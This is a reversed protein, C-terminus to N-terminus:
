LTGMWCQQLLAPSIGFKPLVRFFEAAWQNTCFFPPCLPNTRVIKSRHFRKCHFNYVVARPDKARWYPTARKIIADLPCIFMFYKFENSDKWRYKRQSCSCNDVRQIPHYWGVSTTALYVPTDYMGPHISCLIRRLPSLLNQLKNLKCHCFRM